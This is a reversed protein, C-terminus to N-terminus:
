SLNLKKHLLWLNLCYLGAAIACMIGVAILLLLMITVDAIAATKDFIYIIGSMAFTGVIQWLLSLVVSGGYYIGIAAILRNKKSVVAGVTFCAFLALYSSIILAASLVMYEIWGVVLFILGRLIELSNVPEVPESPAATFLEFFSSIAQFVEARFPSLLIFIIVDIIIVASTSLSLIIAMLLKSNLLQSRKVPLTFTLYAEDTFFNKYLREIIIIENGIVFGSLGIISVIFVLVATITILPYQNSTDNSMISFAISGIVTFAVSAVALIWWTKFVHRLDYKLLKKFM